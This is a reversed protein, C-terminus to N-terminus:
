SGNMGPGNQGGGQIIVTSDPGTGFIGSSTPGSAM